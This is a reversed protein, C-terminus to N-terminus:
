VCSLVSLKGSEAAARTAVGPEPPRHSPSSGLDHHDMLGPISERRRPFSPPRPNPLDGNTASWSANGSPTQPASSGRQAAIRDTRRGYSTWGNPRYETTGNRSTTACTLIAARSSTTCSFCSGSASNTGGAEYTQALVSRIAHPLLAARNYTTIVVSVKPNAAAKSMIERSRGTACRIPAAEVLM